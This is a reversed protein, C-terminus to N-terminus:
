KKNKREWKELEALMEELKERAEDSRKPLLQSLGARRLKLNWDEVSEMHHYFILYLYFANALSGNFLNYGAKEVLDITFLPHLRLTACISLVTGLKINEADGGEYSEIAGQSVMSREALHEQTLNNYDSNPEKILEKIENWKRNRHAKLTGGFDSPLTKYFALYEELQEKIAQGQDANKLIYHNQKDRTDCMVEKFDDAMFDRNLVAADSYYASQRKNNRKTEFVMCCEDAHELAYDTLEYYGDDSLVVYKSHNCVLMKNVHVIRQQEYAESLEPKKLEHEIVADPAFFSQGAKLSGNAFSIPVTYSGDVYNLVGAAQEYGLQIVRYKATENSVQYIEALRKIAEEMVVANRWTPQKRQKEELLNRFIKEATITPVLIRAALNNAQWEMRLNDSSLRRSDTLTTPCELIKTTDQDMLLCLDIFKRHREWHVCEHIISFYIRELNYPGEEEVRVLITGRPVEQEIYDQAESSYIGVTRSAFCLQGLTNEPLDAAGADLGMHQIVEFVPLPMAYELMTPAYQCLFNQAITDLEYENLYPIIAPAIKKEQLYVDQSYVTMRYQSSCLGMTPDMRGTFALKLWQKQSLTFIGDQGYCVAEIDMRVVLQYMFFDADFDDFFTDIPEYGKLIVENIGAADEGFVREKFRESNISEKLHAEFSEQNKGVIYRAFKRGITKIENM